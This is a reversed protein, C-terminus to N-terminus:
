AVMPITDNIEVSQKIIDHLLILAQDDRLDSCKLIDRIRQKLFTPYPAEAVPRTETWHLLRKRAAADGTPLYVVRAFDILHRQRAFPKELAEWEEPSTTEGTLALKVALSDPLADANRRLRDRFSDRHLAGVVLAFEDDDHQQLRQAIKEEAEPWRGLQFLLDAYAVEGIERMAALVRNERDHGTTRLAIESEQLTADPRGRPEFRFNQQDDSTFHRIAERQGAAGADLLRTLLAINDANDHQARYDVLVGRAEPFRGEAILIHCLLYLSIEDTQGSLLDIANSFHGLHALLRGLENRHPHHNPHLKLGVELLRKAEELAGRERLLRSLQLRLIASEPIRRMAEWYVWEALDARDLQYLARGRLDWAYPNAPRWSLAKGAWELAQGPIERVVVAGLNCASRVLFDCDGTQDAYAELTRLLQLMENVLPRTIGEEGARQLLKEIAPKVYPLRIAAGTVNGDRLRNDLGRETEILWHRFPAEQNQRQTLLEHWRDRWFPPPNPFRAKIHRWQLLFRERDEDGSLGEAWLTLGKLIGQVKQKDNSAPSALGNMASDLLDEHQPDAAERCLRIWFFRFANGNTVLQAGALAVQRPLDWVPPLRMPWAWEMLDLLNDELWRGANPLSMRWIATLGEGYETIFRPLGYARRQELTMERRQQLWKQLAEDLRFRDEADAQGFLNCLANSPTARELGPLLATGRMLRNLAEDPSQHFRDLWALTM